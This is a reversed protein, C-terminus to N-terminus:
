DLKFIIVVFEPRARNRRRKNRVSSAYKPPRTTTSRYRLPLRPTRRRAGKDDPMGSSEAVSSDLAASDRRLRLANIYSLTTGVADLFESQLYPDEISDYQEVLRFPDDDPDVPNIDM